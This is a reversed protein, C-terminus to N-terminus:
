ASGSIVEVECAAYPCPPGWNLDDNRLREWKYFELSQIVWRIKIKIAFVQLQVMEM